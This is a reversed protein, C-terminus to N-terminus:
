HLTETSAPPLPLVPIGEDLLQAAEAVSTRGKISREPVDGRHMRRAEEAFRPGVDEAQAVYKRAIHMWAARAQAATAPEAHPSADAETPLSLPQQGENASRGRNIRPASLVKHVDMSGCVPCELLGRQRQDLYDQESAFWGEFVHDHTCRLDLVKM